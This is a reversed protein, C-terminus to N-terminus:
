AARGFDLPRPRTPDPSTSADDVAAEVSAGRDGIPEADARSAETERATAKAAPKTVGGFVIGWAGGEPVAPGGVGGAEPSAFVGTRPARATLREVEARRAEAAAASRAAHARKWALREARAKALMEGVTMNSSGSDSM